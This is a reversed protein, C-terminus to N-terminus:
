DRSAASACGPTPTRGVSYVLVGGVRTPQGLGAFVSTWPWPDTQDIVIRSVGKKKALDIVSGGEGLPVGGALLGDIPHLEDYENAFSSPVERGIQGGALRFEFDSLAQWLLAHGRYGYPIALVNEGPSMCTEYYGKAIFAPVQPTQDWRHDGLNPFLAVIALTPLGVRLWQSVGGSAAWLAVLVAAALSAYMMVRCPYINEFAPLRAVLWWPMPVTEHGYVHLASGFSAVVAAAFVVILFRTAQSRQRRLLVFAVIVLMPIGLYAGQELENNGSFHGALDDAVDGGGLAATHTPVFINM